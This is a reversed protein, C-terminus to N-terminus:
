AAAQVQQAAPVIEIGIEAFLETFRKVDAETLSKLQAAFQPFTEGPISLFQKAAKVFSMKQM